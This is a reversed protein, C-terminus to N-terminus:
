WKSAKKVGFDKIKVDFYYTSYVNIGYKEKVKDSAWGQVIVQCIEKVWKAIARKDRSTEIRVKPEHEGIGLNYVLKRVFLGDKEYVTSMLGDRKIHGCFIENKGKIINKISEM